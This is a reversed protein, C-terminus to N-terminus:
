GKIAAAMRHKFDFLNTCNDEFLQDLRREERIQEQRELKTMPRKQLWNWGYDEMSYTLVGDGNNEWWYNDLKFYSISESTVISQTILM